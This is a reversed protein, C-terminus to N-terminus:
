RVTTAAQELAAMWGDAARSWPLELARRQGRERLDRALRADSLVRDLAAEVQGATPEVLLGGDGVVEPLAGRAAAVVAAGCAMAELAPLGFGESLSPMCFADAGALVAALEGDDLDRLAV